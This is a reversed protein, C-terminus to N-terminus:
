ERDSGVYYREDERHIQVDVLANYSTAENEAVEDMRESTGSNGDFIFESKDRSVSHPSLDCPFFFAFFSSIADNATETRNVPLM